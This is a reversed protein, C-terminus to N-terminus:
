CRGLTLMVYYRKQPTKTPSLNLPFMNKLMQPLESTKFIFTIVLVLVIMLQSYQICITSVNSVEENDLEIM